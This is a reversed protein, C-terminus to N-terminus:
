SPSGGVSCGKAALGRRKHQMFSLGLCNGPGKLEERLGATVTLLTNRDQVIM